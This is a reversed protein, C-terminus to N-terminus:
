SVWGATRRVYRRLWRRRWLFLQWPHVQRQRSLSTTFKHVGDASYWMMMGVCMKAATSYLDGLVFSEYQV